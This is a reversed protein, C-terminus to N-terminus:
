PGQIGQAPPPPAPPPPAPGRPSDPKSLSAASTRLEAVGPSSAAASAQPSDPKSLDKASTRLEAVGPSLASGDPAPASVQADSPKPLDAVTTPSESLGASPWSGDASPFDGELKRKVFDSLTNVGTRARDAIDSPTIDGRDFAAGSESGLKQLVKKQAGEVAGEAVKEALTVLSDAKVAGTLGGPFAGAAASIALNAALALEPKDVALQSEDVVNQVVKQTTQIPSSVSTGLVGSLFHKRFGTAATAVVPSMFAGPMSGFLAGNGMLNVAFNLAAAAKPNDKKYADFVVGGAATVAGAGVAKLADTQKFKFAIAFALAGGAAEAVIKVPNARVTDFIRRVFGGGSPGPATM